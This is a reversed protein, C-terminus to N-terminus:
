ERSWRTAIADVSNTPTFLASDSKFKKLSAQGSSNRSFFIARADRRKNVSPNEFYCTKLSCLGRLAHCITYLYISSLWGGGYPSDRSEQCMVLVSFISKFIHHLALLWTRPIAKKRRDFSRRRRILLSAHTYFAGSTTLFTSEIGKAWACINTHSFWYRCEPSILIGLCLLYSDM